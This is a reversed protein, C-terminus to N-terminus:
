LMQFRVVNAAAVGAEPYHELLKKCLAIHGTPEDSQMDWGLHHRGKEIYTRLAKAESATRLADDKLEYALSTANDFLPALQYTPQGNPRRRVLFGWNETRRDTNGILADFIVAKTWWALFDSGSGLVFPM